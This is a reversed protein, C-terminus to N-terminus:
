LKYCSRCLVLLTGNHVGWTFQFNEEFTVNSLSAWNSDGHYFTAAHKTPRLAMQLALPVAKRKKRKKKKGLCAAIIIVKGDPISLPKASLRRHDVSFSCHLVLLWWIFNCKLTYKENIQPKALHSFAYFHAASWLEDFSWRCDISSPAGFLTAQNQAWFLLYNFNPWQAWFTHTQQLIDRNKGSPSQAIVCFFVSVTVPPSINNAKSSLRCTM